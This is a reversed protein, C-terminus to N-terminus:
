SRANRISRALLAARLSKLEAVAAGSSNYAAQVVTGIQDLIGLYPVYTQASEPTTSINEEVSQVLADYNIGLRCGVSYRPGTDSGYVTLMRGKGGLHGLCAITRQNPVIAGNGLEVEDHLLVGRGIVVKDQLTRADTSNSEVENPCILAGEMVLVSEGIRVDPGIEVGAGISSDRGICTRAGVHTGYGLTVGQRISAQEGVVVDPSLRATVDVYASSAILPNTM